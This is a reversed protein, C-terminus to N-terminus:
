GGAKFLRGRMAHLPCGKSPCLRVEKRVWACCDLCKLKIAAVYSRHTRQAMQGYKSRAREPIGDLVPNSNESIAKM